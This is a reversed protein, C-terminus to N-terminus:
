GYRLLRAGETDLWDRAYDAHPTLRDVIAYFRPSHDLAQLHAVEHAVVYDLVEIPAMILRWSFCLRADSSCSGWRARPDTLRFPPPDRRIMAAKVAVRISLARRSEEMLWDRVTAAITAASGPVHLVDGSLVPDSGVLPFLSILIRRGQFPISQGDAFPVHPALEDLHRVIWDAKSRAFAMGEAISVWTPLTLVACAEKADIRLTMHRAQRNRLTRVPIDRALYNILRPNKPARRAIGRASM